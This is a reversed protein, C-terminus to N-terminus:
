QLSNLHPYVMVPTYEHSLPTKIQAYRTNYSHIESAPTLINLLAAPNNNKDNKFKSMLLTVKLRSINELKLIKLLIYYSDVHERGHALFMSRMCRNQKTCIKNLITRYATGWSLGYNLQKLM